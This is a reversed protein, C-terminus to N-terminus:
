VDLLHQSPDHKEGGRPNKDSDKSRRSEDEVNRGKREENKM